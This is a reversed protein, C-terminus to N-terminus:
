APFVVPRNEATTGAKGENTGMGSLTAKDNHGKRFM